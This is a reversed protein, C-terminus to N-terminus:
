KNKKRKKPSIKVADIKSDEESSGSISNDIYTLISEASSIIMDEMKWLNSAFRPLKKSILRTIAPYSFRKELKFYYIGAFPMCMSYIYFNHDYIQVGYVKIRRFVQFDGPYKIKIYNLIIKLMKATKNKDGVYHTHDLCSPPGSVELTSFELFNMEVISFIADIKNGSCRRDDDRLSRNFLFASCRLTSEGWMYKLVSKDKFLMIFVQSVFQIIYNGETQDEELLNNGNPFQERFIKMLQLVKKKWKINGNARIKERETRIANCLKEMTNVNKTINKIYQKVCKAHGDQEADHDASSSLSEEITTIIDDWHKKFLRRAETASSNTADLINYRMLDQKHIDEIYKSKKRWEEMKSRISINNVILECDVTIDYPSKILLDDEDEYASSIESNIRSNTHEGSYDLDSENKRNRLNYKIPPEERNEPIRPSEDDISRKRKNKLNEITTTFVAENNRQVRVVDAIGIAVHKERVQQLLTCDHEMTARHKERELILDWFSAVVKSSLEKNLKKAHDRAFQPLVRNERLTELSRAIERHISEREVSTLNQELDHRRLFEIIKCKVFPVSSFYSNM